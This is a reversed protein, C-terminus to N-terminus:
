KKLKFCIPNENVDNQLECYKRLPFENGQEMIRDPDFNDPLEKPFQTKTAFTCNIMSDYTDALYTGSLNASSIDIDLVDSVEPLQRMDKLDPNIQTCIIPEPYREIDRNSQSVNKPDAKDISRNNNSNCGSICLSIFLLCFICSVIKQIRTKEFLYINVNM